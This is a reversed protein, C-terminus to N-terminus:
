HVCISGYETNAFRIIAAYNLSSLQTLFIGVFNYGLALLNFHLISPRQLFGCWGGRNTLLLCELSEHVLKSDNKEGNGTIAPLQHNPLSSM